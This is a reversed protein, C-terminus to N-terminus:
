LAGAVLSGQILFHILILKKVTRKNCSPDNWRNILPWVTRIALISLTGVLIPCALNFGLRSYVLATVTAFLLMITAGMKVTFGPGMVVAVTRKGAARDGDIDGIDAVPSFAMGYAFFLIAAYLTTGTIQGSAAIGGGLSAIAAWLSATTQKLLFRNKLSLPPTSYIYGLALGFCALAFVRQDLLLAIILASAAMAIVYKKAQGKSVRGSPLPRDRSNIRDIEMDQVDNYVYAYLAVLYMVITAAVTPLLPPIGGCAVLAGIFTGWPFIIARGRYKVLELCPLIPALISLNKNM